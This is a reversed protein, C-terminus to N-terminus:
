KYGVISAAPVSISWGSAQAAGNSAQISEAKVEVEFTLNKYVNDTNDTKFEVTKLLDSTHAEPKLVQNYYYYGDEQKPSWTDASTNLATNASKAFEVKLKDYDLAEWGETVEGTGYEITKVEEGYENKGTTVKYRTVETGAKLNGQDVALKWTKIVKARVFQDYNATSFVGAEKIMKDGPQVIYDLTVHQYKGAPGDKTVQKVDDNTGLIGDKGQHIFNEEVEIGANLDNVNNAKGTNFINTVSDNSTFWALTGGVVGVTMLGAAALAGVKKINM